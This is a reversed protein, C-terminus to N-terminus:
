KVHDDCKPIGSVDCFLLSFISCDTPECVDNKKSRTINILGTDGLVKAQWRSLRLVVYSLIQLCVLVSIFVVYFSLQVLLELFIKGPRKNTPVCGGGWRWRKLKGEQGISLYCGPFSIVQHWYNRLIAHCKSSNQPQVTVCNFFLEFVM